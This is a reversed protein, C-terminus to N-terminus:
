PSGRFFQGRADRRELDSSPMPVSVSRDAVLSIRNINWQLKPRTEHPVTESMFEPSIKLFKGGTTNLAGSFPNRNFNQLPSLPEFFLIVVRGSHRFTQRHTRENPYVRLRVSPCVSQYFLIASQM